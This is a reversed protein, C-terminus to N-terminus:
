PFPVPKGRQWMHQELAEHQVILTGRGQTCTVEVDDPVLCRARALKPFGSLDMDSVPVNFDGM